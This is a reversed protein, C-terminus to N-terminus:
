RNATRRDIKIKTARTRDTQERLMVARCAEDLTRRMALGWRQFRLLM